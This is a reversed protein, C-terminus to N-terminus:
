MRQISPLDDIGSVIDKQEPKGNGGAKSHGGGPQPETKQYKDLKKQLAAVQEELKNARLIHFPLIRSAAAVDGQARMVIRMREDPTVGDKLGIGRFALANVKERSDIYEKAEKGIDEEANFDYLEPASKRLENQRGEYLETAQKIREEQARKQGEQHESGKKKWEDLANTKSEHLESIKEVYRMVVAARSGFQAEAKEHAAGPEMYVLSAIDEGTIPRKTGDIETVTYGKLKAGANKWADTLPNEYRDKFDDSQQYDVYRLRSESDDYKKQLQDYKSNLEAQAKAVEAKTGEEKARALEEVKAKLDDREKKTLDYAERLAKPTKLDPEVPAKPADAAKQETKPQKRLKGLGEGVDDVVAPKEPAPAPTEAAAPAEPAKEAAPTPTPTPNQPTVSQDQPIADIGSFIDAPGGAAPPAEPAFLPNKM